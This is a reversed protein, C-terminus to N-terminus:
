GVALAPTERLEALQEPKSVGAKAFAATEDPLIPGTGALGHRFRRAADDSLGFERGRMGLPRDSDNDVLWEALERAFATRNIM